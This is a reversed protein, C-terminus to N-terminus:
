ARTDKQQKDLNELYVQMDQPSMPKAFLYGQLGDVGLKTMFSQQVVTEIGEAITKIQLNKALDVIARVVAQHTSKPSCLQATFSRDIKIVDIPLSSLISLCSYGTGFDDMVIEFGQSKLESLKGIILEIDNIFISETIELQLCSPPIDYKKVTQAVFSVFDEKLLEKVSM